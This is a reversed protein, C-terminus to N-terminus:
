SALSLAIVGALTIIIGLIQQKSLRDKFIFYALVAFLAPYSQSIPSVISNQGSVLAFSFAFLAITGLLGNFFMFIFSRNDKPLELRISKIKMYLLVLPFSWWSFYAPWFWGIDGIPIKVFTFYIGWTVMALLAYPVGRDSILNRFHLKKFDLSSLILGILIGAISLIQALNISEKLFLVSLIVVLGGNAGGIAGVLSANGEKLGQYFSMLPIAGVPTLVLLWLITQNTIHDLDHWAFPIYLSAFAICLVYSWLASSYGGIKRSVLGGFVDATGWGVAAILAFIIATM